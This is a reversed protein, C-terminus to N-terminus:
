GHGDKRFFASFALECTLPVVMIDPRTCSIADLDVHSLTAGINDVFRRIAPYSASVTMSVRYRIFPQDAGEELVYGVEDVPLGAATAARNFQQALTASEFWPLAFAASSAAVSSSVSQAHVRNRAHQQAM